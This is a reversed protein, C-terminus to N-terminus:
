IYLKSNISFGNKYLKTYLKIRFQIMINQPNYKQFDINYIIKYSQSDFILHTSVFYIFFLSRKKRIREDYKELQKKQWFHTCMLVLLLHTKQRSFKKDISFYFFVFCNYVVIYMYQKYRSNKWESDLVRNEQM